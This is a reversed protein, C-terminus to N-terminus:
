GAQLAQAVHEGIPLSCTLGPSEIGFLAVLGPLGHREPGDIRFDPQPEGPGHIKPRVAGYDPQLAGDPLGPWYRRIDAYFRDARAPDVDYTEADVFALDPGFRPRGALDRTYHTGLAGPIPPPYILRQFPARGDVRFYTGKGLSQKPIEGAPYGDIRAACAQAGLGSAVILARTAFRAPSAGGARVEFGGGPLPAAGEFPTLFALAGGRDEIEGLLALMYGHSDLIGTESSALAAVCALEPELACAAEGSLWSVGEVGNREAQAAVSELRAIEAPEAAVVLKGCKAHDVGHAALFGYLARRGEVCFRARLSGTPYYLGAHIVESSRSSVGRGIGAEKELVVVSQGRQALAYGVALGVAGAGVVTADFDFQASV